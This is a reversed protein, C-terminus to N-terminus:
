HYSRAAQNLEAAMVELEPDFPIDHPTYRPSYTRLVKPLLLSRLEPWVKRLREKRSAEGGCREIAERDAEIMHRTVHRIFSSMHWQAYLGATLRYFYDGYLHDYVDFAVTRHELEEVLHWNLLAGVQPHMNPDAGREFSFRASATTLAEFGEAYALNFRLSKETSFRRYDADLKAELEPLKPFCDLRLAQNLRIHQKYHQGEQASFRELDDLLQPHRVEKKAEKMTRILYPELYPLLLSLGIVMYSQEPDGAVVLPDLDDDFQFDMQRVYIPQEAHNAAAPM